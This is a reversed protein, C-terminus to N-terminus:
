GILKKSSHVGNVGRLECKHLLSSVQHQWKKLTEDDYSSLGQGIVTPSPRFKQLYYHSTGKLSKAIHLIDEKTHFEKVVTTRFEHPIGSQAILSISRKIADADMAIGTTMAYKEPTNKIDMAIYDLIGLRLFLAIQEPASGNTDLKVKLGLKKVKKIFSILDPHLTPEGGTICIGDIIKRRKYLASLVEEEPINPVDQCNSGLALDKNHCFPCAYNCGGTFITSCVHGPYDILSTKIFGKIIM